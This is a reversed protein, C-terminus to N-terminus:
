AFPILPVFHPCDKIPYTSQFPCNKTQYLVCSLCDGKEEEQLMKEIKEDSKKSIKCMSFIM